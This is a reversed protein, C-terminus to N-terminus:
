GNQRVREIEILRFSFFDLEEVRKKVDTFTLAPDADFLKHVELYHTEDIYRKFYPWNDVLVCELIHEKITNPKLKRKSAVENLHAGTELMKKSVRASHTLGEDCDNHAHRWLSTLLPYARQERHGIRFSLQDILINYHHTSMDFSDRLQRSTSGSLAHGVFHGAIFDSYESPFAELTSRVEKYWLVALLEMPKGHSSLWHKVSNQDELSSLYPIYQKNQFSYESFIQTIFIFRRWFIQKTTSFRLQDLDNAFRYQKLFDNKEETGKKTLLLRNEETILLQESILYHIIKEWDYLSLEPFLSFLVYLKNKEVTYLVSPTRKGSSILHLQKLTVSTRDSFLSLIYHELFRDTKM